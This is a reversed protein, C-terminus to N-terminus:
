PAFAVEASGSHLDIFLDDAGVNREVLALLHHALRQTLTGRASGPFVRALNLGDLPAPTAPTRAAYALPNAVPDSSRERMTAPDLTAFVQRIAEM